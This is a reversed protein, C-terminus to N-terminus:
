RNSFRGFRIGTQLIGETDGLHSGRGETRFHSGVGGRGGGGLMVQPVIPAWVPWGRNAVAGLEFIFACFKCKTMTNKKEQSCINLKAWSLYETWNIM